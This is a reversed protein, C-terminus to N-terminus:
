LQWLVAELEALPQSWASHSFFPYVGWRSHSYIHPASFHLEHFSVKGPISDELAVAATKFPIAKFPMRSSWLLLLTDLATPSDCSACSPMGTLQWLLLQQVSMEMVWTVRYLYFNYTSGNLPRVLWQLHLWENVPFWSLTRLLLTGLLLCKYYSLLVNDISKLM